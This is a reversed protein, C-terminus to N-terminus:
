LPERVDSLSAEMRECAEVVNNRGCATAVEKAKACLIMAQDKDGLESYIEAQYFIYECLKHPHSAALSVAQSLQDLAASLDGLEKLEEAIASHTIALELPNGLREKLALVRRYYDLAERHQGKDRHVNAINGLVKILEAKDDIKDVLLWKREYYRMAADPDKQKYRLLGLNGLAISQLQLYHHTEALELCNQLYQEATAFDKQEMYMFGLNSLTKAARLSDQAQDAADLSAQHHALAQEWLKHHQHWIGLNGQSIAIQTPSSALDSCAKWAELAGQMDGHRFALTGKLRLLDFRDDDGKVCLAAERLQADAEDWNGTLSHLEALEIMIRAASPQFGEPLSPLWSQLKQWHAIADRNNYIRAAARAAQELYIAAKAAIGARHYHDALTFLFEQRRQPYLEEIAEAALKHLTARNELLLTQYAVDRTTIHKFFYASYDFGLLKLIFSQQELQSLTADVDLPDYLQEEIWNLIDVFFEQGIVSAKQLLQRIAGELMDLRSLVLSNLNPPIPLETLDMSSIDELYNCWEELYFPNGMSLKQLRAMLEDTILLGQTSQRVLRSIEIDSLPKLELEQFSGSHQLGPEFGKRYLLLLMLRDRLESGPDLLLKNVLFSLVQESAEDMWHIDDLVLLIPEGSAAKNMIMRSVVSGIALKLHTILEAGSLRLRPDPYPIELLAGILPLADQLEQRSAEDLGEGLALVREELRAKRVALEDASRLNFQSELLNVFLNLPSRVLSSTASMLVNSGGTHAQVFEHVLRTKGLGADGMIGIIRTPAEQTSLTQLRAPNSDLAVLSSWAESLVRLEAERGIFVSKRRYWRQGREQRPGLVRYSEIPEDFGKAHVSGHYEFEFFREVAQMAHRPMLIGNVPANTEMRQALNVAAGIVTFDGERAEGVKGVVVLGTNIGIRIALEPAKSGMDSALKRNIWDLQTIMKLAAMVARETDQESARRAGFLAMIGDGMYKDVYGGYYSICRSFRKMLPDLTKNFIEPDLKSGLATSGKVDAFLIAVERREGEKLRLKQRQAENEGFPDLLDFFLESEEDHNM